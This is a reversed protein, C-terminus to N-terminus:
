SSVSDPPIGAAPGPEPASAPPPTRSDILLWLAVLVIFGGYFGLLVGAGMILAAWIGGTLLLSAIVAVLGALILGAVTYLLCGPVRAVPLQDRRLHLVYEVVGGGLAVLLGLGLGILFLSSNSGLDV